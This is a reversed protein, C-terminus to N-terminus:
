KSVTMPRRIKRKKRPSNSKGSEMEVSEYNETFVGSDKEILYIKKAHGFNTRVSGRYTIRLYFGWLHNKQITQWLMKSLRIAVCHEGDEGIRCIHAARARDARDHGPCPRLIGELSEGPIRFTFIPIKCSCASKHISDPSDIQKEVEDSNIAQWRQKKM